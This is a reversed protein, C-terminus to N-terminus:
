GQHEALLRRFADHAAEPRLAAASEIRGEHGLENAVLSATQMARKLPSSVVVDIEIDLAALLRGVYRCQEIGEADLARKEDAAASSKRQGASAHRLLYVIM